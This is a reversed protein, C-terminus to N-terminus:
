SVPELYQSKSVLPLLELSAFSPDVTFCKTGGLWWWVGGGVEFLLYVATGCLNTRDIHQPVSDTGKPM